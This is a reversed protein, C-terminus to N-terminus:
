FSLNCFVLSDSSGASNDGATDLDKEFITRPDAFCSGHFSMKFSVGYTKPDLFYAVKGSSFQFRKFGCYKHFFTRM